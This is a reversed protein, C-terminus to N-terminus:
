PTEELKKLWDKCMKHYQAQHTVDPCYFHLYWIEEILHKIIQQVQDYPVYHSPLQDQDGDHLEEISHFDIPVFSDPAVKM